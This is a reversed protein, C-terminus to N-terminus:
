RTVVSEEIIQKLTKIVFDLDRKSTDFGMSFRVSSGNAEKGYRIADIVYSGEAGNMLCASQSSASIGYHDLKIIMFENDINPIFININNAIRGEEGGNIIVGKIGKKVKEFFYKQLSLLRKTEKPKNKLSIDLARALGAIAPINETGPRLGREQEGGFFIQNLINKQSFYLLGSGKPGYIKAGDVSLLDVGLKSVEIDMYLPAQGADTHVLPHSTNIKNDKKFRRVIKVVDKVPEITGIENNALMVSVLVTNRRLMKKFDKLIVKGSEDVKLYDVEAGNRKLHEFSEIVSSHEIESAIFHLGRFSDKGGAAKRASGIIALNNSETGGSTFIIQSARAGLATASSLRSRELIQLAEDGEKHISGPNGFKKAFYPKMASFVEPSVPTAAAYDLYIRKNKRTPM